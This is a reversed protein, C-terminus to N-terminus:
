LRGKGAITDSGGKGEKREAKRKENQKSVELKNM